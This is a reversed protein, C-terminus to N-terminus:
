SVTMTSVAPRSAMSSSIIFSIAATLSAIVGIVAKVPVLNITIDRPEEAISIQHLGRVAEAVVTKVSESGLLGSISSTVYDGIVYDVLPRNALLESSVQRAVAVKVEEDSFVTMVNETFAQQDYVESTFWYATVAFLLFAVSVISLIVATAKSMHKM